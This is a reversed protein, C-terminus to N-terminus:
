AADCDQRLDRSSMPAEDGGLAVLPRTPEPREAATLAPLDARLGDLAHTFRRGLGEEILHRAYEEPSLAHAAAAAALRDRAEADLPLHLEEAM